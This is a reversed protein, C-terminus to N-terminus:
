KKKAIVLQIPSGNFLYFIYAVPLLLVTMVALIFPLVMSNLSQYQRAFINLHPSIRYMISQALGFPIYEIAFLSMSTVVNFGANEIKKKLGIPSYHFLHRPPDLHFWRSGFPIKEWSAYNPYEIVLYGNKKLMKRVKSLAGLPDKLHEFSQWFTAIDYSNPKERMGEIGCCKVQPNSVNAFPTEIGSYSFRQPDLQKGIAGDGCGIDILKGSINLSDIISQRRKQLLRYLSTKLKSYYAKPYYPSFNTPKPFTSAIKCPTCYYIDFVQTSVADRVTAELRTIDHKCLPCAMIKVKKFPGNPKKGFKAWLYQSLTKFTGLAYITSRYINATHMKPHYDCSVQIEAIKFKYFVAQVIIEFSFLYDDSNQRFPVNELFTKTYMRFGSHFETLEIGLILEDIFSLARNAIFKIPPMKRELAEKPHIFRSGLAFDYGQKAKKLFLPLTSPDYQNDPHYEIIIDAGAELAKVLCVKLNGGYGLNNENRFVNIPFKKAVAYTNDTSADDVLIIQDIYTHPLRYYARKLTLAANYAPM